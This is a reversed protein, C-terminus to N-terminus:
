QGRAYDPGTVVKKAPLVIPHRRAAALAELVLPVMQEVTNSIRPEPQTERAARTFKVLREWDYAAYFVVPISKIVPDSHQRLAIIFHAGEHIEHGGTALHTDGVRQVDSVILDFDNDTALIDTAARSSTACVVDIGLARLLRREGVVNHPKDDIWLVRAGRVQPLLPALADIRSRFRKDEVRSLGLADVAAVVQPLNLALEFGGAKFTSLREWPVVYLAVALGVLLLVIQDIRPGLVEFYIIRAAAVTLLFAVLIARTKSYAMQM